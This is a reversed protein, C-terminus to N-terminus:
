GGQGDTIWINMYPGGGTVSSDRTIILCQIDSVQMGKRNNTGWGAKQGGMTIEFLTGGAVNSIEPAINSGNSNRIVFTEWGSQAAMVPMVLAALLVLIGFNKMVRGKKIITGAETVGRTVVYQKLM